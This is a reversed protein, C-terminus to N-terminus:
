FGRGTARGLRRGRQDYRIGGRVQYPVGARSVFENAPRQPPDWGAGAAQFAKMNGVDQGFFAQERQAQVL